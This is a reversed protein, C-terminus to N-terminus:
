PIEKYAVGYVDSFNAVSSDDIKSSLPFVRWDTNTLDKASLQTVNICAINPVSGLPVVKDIAGVSHQRFINIPLLPSIFTIASPSADAMRANLAVVCNSVTSEFTTNNYNPAMTGSAGLLAGDVGDDRIGFKTFDKNDAAGTNFRIYNAGTADSNSSNSRAGFIMPGAGHSSNIIDLWLGGSVRLNNATLYAGGAWVGAKTINGFAMHTFAGSTVELAAFVSLGDTFFSYGTWPAAIDFLGMVTVFRQGKDLTEFNADTPLELMMRGAVRDQAYSITADTEKRFGYWTQVTDVTKSIRYLDNTGGTDIGHDTFGANAVAFAVLASIFADESAVSVQTSFAM